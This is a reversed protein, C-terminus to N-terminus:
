QREFHFIEDQVEISIFGHDINHYVVQTYAIMEGGFFNIITTKYVDSYDITDVTLSSYFSHYFVIYNPNGGNEILSDNELRLSFEVPNNQINLDYYIDKSCKFTSFLIIMTAILIILNRTNIFGHNM